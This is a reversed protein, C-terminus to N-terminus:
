SAQEAALLRRRGAVLGFRVGNLMGDHAYPAAQGPELGLGVVGRLMVAAHQPLGAAAAPGARAQAAAAEGGCGGGESAAAKGKGEPPPPAGARRQQLLQEHEQQARQMMQQAHQYLQRTVQMEEQLYAGHALLSQQVQQPTARRGLDQTRPAPAAHSASAKWL